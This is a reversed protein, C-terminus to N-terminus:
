NRRNPPLPPIPWTKAAPALAANAAETQAASASVAKKTAASEQELGQYDPEAREHVLRPTAQRM